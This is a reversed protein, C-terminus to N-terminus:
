VQVNLIFNMIGAAVKIGDHEEAAHPFAEDFVDKPFIGKSYRSYLLFEVIQKNFEPHGEILSLLRCLLSGQVSLTRNPMMFAQCACNENSGIIEANPPVVTVIDRHM